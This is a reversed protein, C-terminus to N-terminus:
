RRLDPSQSKNAHDPRQRVMMSLGPLDLPSAFPLPSQVPTGPSLDSHLTYVPIQSFLFRALQPPNHVNAGNMPHEQYSGQPALSIQPIRFAPRPLQPKHNDRSEASRLDFDETEGRNRPLCSVNKPFIVDRGDLVPTKSQGDWHRVTPVRTNRTTPRLKAGITSHTMAVM